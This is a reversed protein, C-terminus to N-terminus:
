ASLVRTQLAPVDQNYFRMFTSPSSWGAAGCIESISVGSSWAWSSAIGRTSHARVGIPCQLGLSSYALAIAEVIWRSISQKTVPRGKARNSFSVFLQESERFSASREIYARLARVPCLLFLDQDDASSPLASLVIVQARFPTSLVKPVYGLRPKLVVKSDNPGFELCAPSVSLAQLDGVRKVSALALLLATKFSLSRLSASQLPEFPPGKLARLVTPLDWLPVTRPRPPNLRRAGRIFQIVASNRGVSRGAIPAHFAAIASAYVKVTSPSRQKDLLEQLFSLVMSIESTVPDLDRDQCWASFISWKLAYLRRTSPARAEAM